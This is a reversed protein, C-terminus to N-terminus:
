KFCLFYVSIGQELIPHYNGVKQLISTSNTANTKNGFLSNTYPKVYTSVFYETQEAAVPSLYPKAKLLM